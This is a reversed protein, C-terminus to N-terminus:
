KDNVERRRRCVLGVDATYLIAHENTRMPDKWIVVMGKEDGSAVRGDKCSALCTIPTEHAGELQQQFEVGEEDKISFVLIHGESSGICISNGISTVGRVCSVAAHFSIHMDHTLKM